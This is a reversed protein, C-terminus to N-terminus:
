PQAPTGFNDPNLMAHIGGGATGDGWQGLFAEYADKVTQMGDGDADPLSEEQIAYANVYIVTQAIDFNIEKVVTGQNSEFYKGTDHDYDIRSDLAVTKMGMATTSGPPLVEKYLAGYVNYVKSDVVTEGIKGLTATDWLDAATDHTIHIYGELAQPVAYTYWVWADNTGTNKVKVEKTVNIGPMLQSNQAYTEQLDIRVDGVTFVNAESDRDTLYALTGSLALAGILALSVGMLILKKM